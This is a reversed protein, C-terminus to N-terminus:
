RRACSTPSTTSSTTRAPALGRGPGREKRALANEFNVSDTVDTFTALTGGDPLPVTTVDIVSGDVRTMRQDTSAASTASARDVAAKLAAWAADDRFLLACTAVVADIHPREDLKQPSLKWIRAFAPNYLRLRGDSGFVAVGEKLNDLTEGQM